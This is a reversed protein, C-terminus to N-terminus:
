NNNSELEKLKKELVKIGKDSAIGRIHYIFVELFSQPSILEDDTFIQNEITSQVRMWQIKAIIEENLEPRYLGEAKGKKLNALTHSFIQDRKITLIKQFQDPYYKKLDYEESPNNDRIMQRLVKQVEFIEDIANLGLNFIKDFANIQNEIALNIVHGVLENKDQVYQYLTKKSIGLERSIDDMTVSKIGYKKYLCGVKTLINKLEENM